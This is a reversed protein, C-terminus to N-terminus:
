PTQIAWISMQRGFSKLLQIRSPHFVSHIARGTFASSDRGNSGHKSCFAIAIADARFGTEAVQWAM